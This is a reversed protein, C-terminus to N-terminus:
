DRARDRVEGSLARLGEPLEVLQPPCKYGEPLVPLLTAQMLEV